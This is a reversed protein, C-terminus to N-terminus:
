TQWHLLDESKALWTEYGRGDTGGNGNYCVYTMYWSDGERFVTPCDYKKNNTQPAIVLGYKYPTPVEEYVKRMEKQSIAKVASKTKRAKTQAAVSLSCCCLLVFLIKRIMDFTKILRSM